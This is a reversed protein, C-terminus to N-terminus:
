LSPANLLCRILFKQAKQGGVAVNYTETPSLKNCLFLYKTILNAGIMIM